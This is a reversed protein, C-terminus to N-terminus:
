VYRFLFQDHFSSDSDCATSVPRSLRSWVTLLKSVFHRGQQRLLAWVSEAGRAKKKLSAYRSCDLLQTNMELDGAFIFM